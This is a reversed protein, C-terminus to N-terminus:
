QLNGDMWLEAKRGFPNRCRVLFQRGDVEFSHELANSLWAIKRQWIVKDDVAIRANGLLWGIQVMITHQEPSNVQWRQVAM